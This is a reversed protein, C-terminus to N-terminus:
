GYGRMVEPSILDVTPRVFLLDDQLAWLRKVGRGEKRRHGVDGEAASSSTRLEGGGGM